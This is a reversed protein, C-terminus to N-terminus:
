DLDRLVKKAEKNKYSENIVIKNFRSKAAKINKNKLYALALYWDAIGSWEDQTKIVKSFSQVASDLQEVELYCIGQSLRIYSNVKEPSLTNFLLLASEYDKDEYYRLAQEEISIKKETRKLFVDVSYHSFYEAYLLEPPKEEPKSFFVLLVILVLLLAAIGYVRVANKRKNEQTIKEDLVQLYEKSELEENRKIIDIAAKHVVIEKVLSSDSALKKEFKKKEEGKLSGNLYDEIQTFDKM